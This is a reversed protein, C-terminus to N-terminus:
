TCRNCVYISQCEPCIQYIVQVELDDRTDPDDDWLYVNPVPRNWVVAFVDMFCNFKHYKCKTNPCPVDPVGQWM